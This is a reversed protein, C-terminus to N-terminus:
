PPSVGPSSLGFVRELKPYLAGLLWTGVFAGAIDALAYIKGEGLNVFMPGPCMGTMAWGVGFLAGGAFNGANLPKTPVRLDEGTLTRGHRKIAFLGTASLAVAVGLAGYLEFSEFLFMSQIFDYDGFGSRSLMVGFAVAWAFFFMSRWSM